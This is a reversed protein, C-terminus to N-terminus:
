SILGGGGGFGSSGFGFSFGGSGGFITSFTALTGSGGFSTSFTAVGTCFRRWYSLRSFDSSREQQM